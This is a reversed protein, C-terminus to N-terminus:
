VRLLRGADANLTAGGTRWWLVWGTTGTPRRDAGVVFDNRGISSGQRDAILYAQTFDSYILIDDSSATAASLSSTMGTTGNWGHGLLAPPTGQGFDAWFAHQPGTGTAFQRVDAEFQYAAMWQANPQYRAPLAKFIAYIDPAGFSGNTTAAVRSATTAALTTVIGEPVGSTGAGTTFAGPRQLTLFGDHDELNEQHREVLEVLDITGDLAV